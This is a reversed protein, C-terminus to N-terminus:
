GGKIMNIFEDLTYKKLSNKHTFLFDSTKNKLRVYYGGTAGLFAKQPQSLTNNEIKCEIFYSKGKYIGLLDSVGSDKTNKGVISYVLIQNKLLIEYLIKEVKNYENFTKM